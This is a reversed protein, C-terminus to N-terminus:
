DLEVPLIRTGTEDELVLRVQTAGYPLRGGLEVESGYGDGKLAASDALSKQCNSTKDLTRDSGDLEYVLKARSVSGAFSHRVRLDRGGPVSTIAVEPKVDLVTTQPGQDAPAEPARSRMALTLLLAAIAAALIYRLM